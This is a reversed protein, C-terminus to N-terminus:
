EDFLEPLHEERNRGRARAGGGAWNKTCNKLRKGFLRTELQVLQKLFNARIEFDSRKSNLYELTKYLSWKYKKILYPTNNDDPSPVARAILM